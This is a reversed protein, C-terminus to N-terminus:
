LLEQRFPHPPIRSRGLLPNGWMGNKGKGKRKEKRRTGTAKEVGRRM